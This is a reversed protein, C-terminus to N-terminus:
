LINAQKLIRCIFLCKLIEIKSRGNTKAVVSKIEKHPREYTSLWYKLETDQRRWSVFGMCFWKNFLFFIEYDVFEQKSYWQIYWIKLLSISFLAPVLYPHHYTKFSRLNDSSCLYSHFLLVASAAMPSTRCSFTSKSIKCFECSFM